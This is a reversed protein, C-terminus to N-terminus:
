SHEELQRQFAQSDFPGAGENMLGALLEATGEKGPQDIVTSGGRFALSLSFIPNAHNEVLWAEIGGPSIVREVKTSAHAASVFVVFALAMLVPRLRWATSM